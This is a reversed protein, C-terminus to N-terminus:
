YIECHLKISVKVSEVVVELFRHDDSGLKHVEIDRKKGGLSRREEFLDTVQRQLVAMMKDTHPTIRIFYFDAGLEYQTPPRFPVFSRRRAHLTAFTPM